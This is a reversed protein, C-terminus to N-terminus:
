LSDREIYRSGGSDISISRKQAPGERSAALLHSGRDVRAERRELLQAQDGGSLSGPKQGFGGPRLIRQVQSVIQSVKTAVAAALLRHM